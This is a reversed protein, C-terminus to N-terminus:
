ASVVEYFRRLLLETRSARFPAPRDADFAARYKAAYREYRAQNESMTLEPHFQTAWVPAGTVRLAQYPCRASSALLTVTSPLATARDKHGLQAVFSAGLAAFVPDDQSEATATLDFSGVEASSPDTQVQGGLGVVLAQFGFCSAFMPVGRASVEALGDCFAAVWPADDTVSWDGSGGVLVADVGEDFPRYRESLLDFPLVRDVDVGMKAAFSVREEGRVPDGPARAQLLRFRM